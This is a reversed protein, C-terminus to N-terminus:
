VVVEAKKLPPVQLKLADWKHGAQECAKRMAGTLYKRHSRVGGTRLSDCLEAALSPEISSAVWAVSWIFEPELSPAASSLKRARDKAEDPKVVLLEVVQCGNTPEGDQDLKTQNHNSEALNPKTLNTQSGAIAPQKAGEKPPEKADEKAAQRVTRGHRSLFGHVYNPAHDAWDHVLLRYEENRDLWGCEVLATILTEPDSAWDCAIAIDEDSYRGIDGEPTNKTTAIWLLELTGVTQALSLGLRRQLRKFKLLEPTNSKM